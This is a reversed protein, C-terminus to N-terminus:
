KQAEPPVCFLGLTPYDNSGEAHGCSALAATGAMVAATLATKRRQERPCGRTVVSGDARRTLRVCATPNERVFEEAGVATRASLDHGTKRCHKCFRTQEDGEMGDWDMPCRFSFAMRELMSKREAM